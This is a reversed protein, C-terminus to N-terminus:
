VAVDPKGFEKIYEESYPYDIYGPEVKHGLRQNIYFTMRDYDNFPLGKKVRYVLDPNSIFRRGFVVAVAHDRYKEEVAQKALETTFGGAVFIPKERGWNELAFDLSENKPDTDM